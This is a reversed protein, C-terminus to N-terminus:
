RVSPCVTGVNHSSAARHTADCIGNSSTSCTYGGTGSCSCSLIANQLKGSLSSSILSYEHKAFPLASSNWRPSCKKRNLLTFSGRCIPSHDIFIGQFNNNKEYFFFFCWIERDIQWSKRLTITLNFRKKNRYRVPYNSDYHVPHRDM